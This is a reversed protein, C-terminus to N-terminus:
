ISLRPAVQWSGVYCLRGAEIGGFMSLLATEDRGVAEPKAVHKLFHCVDGPNLSQMICVGSGSMSADSATEKRSCTVEPGDVFASTGDSSPRAGM